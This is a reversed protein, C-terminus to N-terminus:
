KRFNVLPSSLIQRRGGRRIIYLSCVGWAASGRAAKEKGRAAKEIECVYKRGQKFRKILKYGRKNLKEEFTNNSIYNRVSPENVGLIEGLQKNDVIITEKM